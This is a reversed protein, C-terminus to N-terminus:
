VGARVLRVAAFRLLVVAAAAWALLILVDGMILRTAAALTPPTWSFDKSRKWLDGGALYDFDKGKGHIAMDMNLDHIMLRRHSEAADQFALQHATDTGALAMSVNQLPLLPSLLGAFRLVQRQAAYTEPM